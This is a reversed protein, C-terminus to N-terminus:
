INMVHLDNEHSGYHTKKLDGMGRRILYTIKGRYAKAYKTM